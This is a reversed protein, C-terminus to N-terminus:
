KKDKPLEIDKATSGHPRTSFGPTGYVTNMFKDAAAGDGLPNRGNDFKMQAGTLGPGPKNETERETIDTHPTQIRGHDKGYTPMLTQGDALPWGHLVAEEEAIEEGDPRM